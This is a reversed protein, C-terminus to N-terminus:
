VLLNLLSGEDPARRPSPTAIDGGDDFQQVRGFAVAAEPEATLRALLLECHQPLWLDDADLFGIFPTKAEKAGLNRAAGARRRGETSLVRAGAVQAIQVSNDQSGDDVVLIQAVPVTQAKVSAIAEALFEGANYCPIVATVISM